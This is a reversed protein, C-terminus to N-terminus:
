YGEACVVGWYGRGCVDVRSDGDLDGFSITAGKNPVGWGLSDTFDERLVLRKRDFSNGVSFACYLGSPGRGCVDAFGDRNIDVLKISAYYAASSKWSITGFDSPDANSFDRSVYITMNPAATRRDADFSWPHYKTFCAGQQSACNGGANLACEIGYDGRGCVDVRGDGNVDGYQIADGTGIANWGQTAAFNSSWYLAQAFSSGLNEACYIGWYGRGCMDPRGDGTVDVYRISNYYYSAAAWGDADSFNGSSGSSCFAGYIGRGCAVTQQLVPDWVASVTSGRADPYWGLSDSYETTLQQAPLMRTGNHSACYVGNSRRVCVNRNAIGFTRYYTSAGDVEAADSFETSVLSAADFLLTWDDMARPKGSPAANPVGCPVVQGTGGDICNRECEVYTVAGGQSSSGRLCTANPGRIQGNTFAFFTTQESRESCPALTVSASGAVAKLCSSTGTLQIQNQATLTWTPATSCTYSIVPTSGSVALCGPGASNTNMALRGQLAGTGVLSRTAYTRAYFTPYELCPWPGNPACATHEGGCLEGSGEEHCDWTRYAYFVSKKMEAEAASLNEYEQAVTYGRYLRVSVTASASAQYRSAAAMVFLASYYHDWYEAFGDPTPIDFYMHHLGTADLASISSAGYSTMLDLLVNILDERTYVSAVPDYPMTTNMPCNSPNICSLRNSVAGPVSWLNGSQVDALRLYILTVSRGPAFAGIPRTYRAVKKGGAVSVVAASWAGGPDTMLAYAKLDGRERNTWYKEFTDDNWSGHSIDGASIYVVVVENGTKISNMIDPNMFLLDDDQHNVFYMDVCPASGRPCPARPVGPVPVIASATASLEEHGCGTWLLFLLAITGARLFDRIVRLPSTDM